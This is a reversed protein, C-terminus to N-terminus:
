TKLGSFHRLCLLLRALGDTDIADVAAVLTGETPLASSQVYPGGRLGLTAARLRWGDSAFPM